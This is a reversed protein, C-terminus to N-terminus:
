QLGGHPRAGAFESGFVLASFTDFTELGPPLWLACGEVAPLADPPIREQDGRVIV